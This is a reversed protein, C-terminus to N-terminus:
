IGTAGEGVVSTELWQWIGAPLCCGGGVEGSGGGRNLVVPTPLTHSLVCALDPHSDLESM